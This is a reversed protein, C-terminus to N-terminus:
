LHNCFIVNMRNFNTDPQLIFHEHLQKHTEAVGRYHMYVAFGRSVSLLAFVAVMLYPLFHFQHPLLQRLSTLTVAMLLAIHPYVPFLFREEKHPQSFFIFAWVFATLAILAVPLFRYWYTITPASFTYLIYALM